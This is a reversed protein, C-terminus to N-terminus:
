AETDAAPEEDAESATDELLKPEKNSDAAGSLRPAETPALRGESIMRDLLHRAEEQQLFASLM